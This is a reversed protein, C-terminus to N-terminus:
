SEAVLKTLYEEKSIHRLSCKVYGAKPKVMICDGARVIKEVHTEPVEIQITWAVAEIADPKSGSRAWMDQIYILYERGTSTCSCRLIYFDTVRRWSSQEGENLKQGKVRYLEYKDEFPELEGEKSVRTSKQITQSDVLEPELEKFIKDIGIYRFCVRRAELNKISLAEQITLDSANEMSEKILDAGKKSMYSTKSTRFNEFTGYKAKLIKIGINSEFDQGDVVIRPLSM